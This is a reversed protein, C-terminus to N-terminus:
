LRLLEFLRMPEVPKLLHHDFGAARALARDEPQGYGTIAVLLADSCCPLERLKRAVAYGDLGPLGIDLLVVNPMFQEAERLAELGDAAARVDHGSEELLLTLAERADENDEVVLVRRAGGTSTEPAAAIPESAAPAEAVPVRVTFESGRGSGESSAEISGGHLEVLRRVLTLGLGLGGRPRDLPPPGQVFLEFAHALVAPSMGEGSDRVRLVVWGNQEEAVIAIRGGPPTFKAANHLLNAIVQTFRTPDVDLWVPHEPINITLEQRQQTILHRWTEVAPGVIEHLAVHRRELKVSGRTIRSVDLLDDVLHTLHESQRRIIDRARQVTKEDRRGLLEVSHVVPALPNRLEHGLMALFEDKRQDAEALQTARLQLEEKARRDQAAVAGLLLGTTGAVAMFIQLPVLGQEPGAGAFPGTGLHTAWVAIVDAVATATASGAPGFRLAAWILFPFVVYETEPLHPLGIFSIVSVVILASLLMLGETMRVRLVPSRDTWVFLLPAVILAGLADGLWWVWWLAPLAAAQQVGGAGLSLVGITASVIPSVVVAVLLALVDRVRALQGDFGFRRLLMAGVVAELTNGVAIGAAVWLPEQATANALFAGILIGPISRRGLRLVAAIAFGTPPWVATVQAARFALALGLKACGIYILAVAVVVLWRKM